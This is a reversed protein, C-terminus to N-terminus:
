PEYVSVLAEEDEDSLNYDSMDDLGDCLASLSAYERLKNGQPNLKLVLVLLPPCISVCVERPPSPSEANKGRQLQDM